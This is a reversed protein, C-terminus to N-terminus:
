HNYNENIGMDQQVEKTIRSCIRPTESEIYEDSREEISQKVVWQAFRKAIEKLIRRDEESIKYFRKRKKLLNLNGELM